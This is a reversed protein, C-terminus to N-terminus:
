MERIFAEVENLSKTITHGLAKVEASPELLDPVQIVTLGASYAARVGNDSDELALCHKPAERLEVCAKLYIDPNPKGNTIDDGGIVLKFFQLLRVNTLEKVATSRRTSTVVAMKMGRNSLYQILSLVGAKLPVPQNEVEADFKRGWSKSVSEYNFSEGYGEKLIEETKKYTTGICKHYIKLDPEFGYERCAIVFTSIAITETDLLLGDMDFIVAKINNL